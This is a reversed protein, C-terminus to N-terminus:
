SGVDELTDRQMRRDTVWHTYSLGRPKCSTISVWGREGHKDAEISRKKVNRLHGPKSRQAIICIASVETSIDLAYAERERVRQRQRERVRM